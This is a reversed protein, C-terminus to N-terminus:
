KKLANLIADLKSDMDQVKTELVAVRDTPVVTPVVDPAVAPVVPNTEPKPPTAIGARQDEIEKSVTVQNLVARSAEKVDNQKQVLAEFANENVVRGGRIIWGGNAEDRLDIINGALNRVITKKSMHGSVNINGM